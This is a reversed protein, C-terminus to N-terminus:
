AAIPRGGKLDEERPPFDKGAHYQDKLRRLEAQLAEEVLKTLTLRAPYGALYVAANRCQDLVDASLYFTARVKPEPTRLKLAM